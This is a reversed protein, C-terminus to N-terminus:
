DNCCHFNLNLCMGRHIDFNFILCPFSGFRMFAQTGFSVVLVLAPVVHWCVMVKLEWRDEHFVLPHHTGEEMLSLLELTHWWLPSTLKQSPQECTLQILCIGLHSKPHVLVPDTKYFYLYNASPARKEGVWAYFVVPPFTQWVWCLFSCFSLSIITTSFHPFDAFLLMNRTAYKSSYKSRTTRQEYHQWKRRTKIGYIGTPLNRTANLFEM